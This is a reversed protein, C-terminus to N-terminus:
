LHGGAFFHHDYQYYDDLSGDLQKDNFEGEDFCSSCLRWDEAVVHHCNGEMLWAIEHVQSLERAAESFSEAFLWSVILMKDHFQVM